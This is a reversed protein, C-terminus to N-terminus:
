GPKGDSGSVLPTIAAILERPDQTTRTSFEFTGQPGQLRVTLDQVRTRLWVSLATALAAGSGGSGLAVVLVDSLAGMQGPEPVAAPRSVTCQRLDPDALLWDELSTLEAQHDEGSISITVGM